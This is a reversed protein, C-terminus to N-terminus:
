EKVDGREDARADADTQQPALDETLPANEVLQQREKTDGPAAPDGVRGPRKWCDDAEVDPREAGRHHDEEGREPLYRVGVVLRCGYVAGVAPLAEPADRQRQQRRDDEEVGDQQDDARELRECLGKDNRAAGAARDVRR